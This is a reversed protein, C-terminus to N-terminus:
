RGFASFDSTIPIYNGGKSVLAGNYSYQDITTQNGRTGVGQPQNYMGNVDGSVVQGSVQGSSGMTPGTVQTPNTKLLGAVGSGAERALGVAGGVTEKALGVAGGVTEKALGVTGSGTDRLLGVTEAGASKALEYARRSDINDEGSIGNSYSGSANYFSGGYLNIFDSFRNKTATNTGNGGTGGCGTCVGGQACGGGTCQTCTPCVPPIVATKPIYNSTQMATAIDNSSAVTNWFALWNYYESQANPAVPPKAAAAAVPNSVVGGRAKEFEKRAETVKVVDEHAKRTKEQAAAYAKATEEAKLSLTKATAQAKGQAEAEIKTAEAIRSDVVQLDARAKAQSALYAQTALDEKAKAEKLEAQAAAQAQNAQKAIDQLNPDKTTAAAQESAKTSALTAADLKVQATQVVLKAEEMERQKVLVSEIIRYLTNKEVARVNALKTRYIQDAVAAASKAAQAEMQAKTNAEEAIKEQAQAAKELEITDQELDRLAKEKELGTLNKLEDLKVNCNSTAAQFNEFKSM